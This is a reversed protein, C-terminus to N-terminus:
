ASADDSSADRTLMASRSHRKQEWFNGKREWASEEKPKRVRL